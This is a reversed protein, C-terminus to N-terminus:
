LRYGVLGRPLPTDDWEEVPAQGKVRLSRLNHAVAPLTEMPYLLVPESHRRKTMWTAAGSYDPAIPDRATVAGGLLVAMLLVLAVMGIRELSMAAAAALLCLAPLAPLAYRWSLTTSELLHGAALGLPLTAAWVAM